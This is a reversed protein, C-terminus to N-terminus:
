SVANVAAIYAMGPNQRQYALAKQHLELQEADVEKGDSAFSATAERGSAPLDTRGFSVVKPQATLLDRIAKAVPVAPQGAAFSVSTEAPLADLITVLQDKSAPILKSDTVLAEAFAVNDAHTIDRERVKLAEERANVSAERAAFAPDVPTTVPTQEKKPVILPERSIRHTVTGLHPGVIGGAAFSKPKGIDTEGLWEIQYGPLAKDADEMGFKEIFFERLMRLLSATQEFGREGFSATFTPMDASPASFQVNKLGPVAPAAGGLFGVHKPYWCGPVPNHAVGPSFFQLSIKKYRGEKVAEAFAPNIEGVNAYLKETGPDFDFSQVWGFAPADTTPHGVVIPAPATAYDYCDAVARLDAASYSIAAGEMPTFTGTRFVEIRATRAATTTM